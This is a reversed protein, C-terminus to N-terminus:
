TTLKEIRTLLPPSCLAPKESSQVSPVSELPSECTCTGSAVSAVCLQVRSSQPDLPQLASKESVHVAGEVGPLTVNWYMPLATFPLASAHGPEFKEPVLPSVGDLLCDITTVTLQPMKVCLQLPLQTLMKLVELQPDLQLGHEAGAFAVAVHSPTLQPNVHLEPNTLQLPDHTASSADCQPPEQVLQLVPAGAFVVGVHLPPM